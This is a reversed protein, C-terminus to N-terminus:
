LYENYMEQLDDHIVLNNQHIYEVMYKLCLKMSKDFDTYLLERVEICSDHNHSAYDAIFIIKGLLSLGKKGTTHYKIAEIIESDDIGLKDQVLISSSYGHMLYVDDNSIEIKNCIIKLHEEKTFFKTYDHFLAAIQVKEVDVNLQKALKTSIRLVEITHHYRNSDGLQERVIKNYEEIKSNLFM